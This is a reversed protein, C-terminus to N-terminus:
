ETSTQEGKELLEVEVATIDPITQEGGLVNEYTFLGNYVGWVEIIDDELFRGGDWRILVDNDWTYEGPTVYARFQFGEEEDGLVQAIEGQQIHIEEGEYQDENRMLDDYPIEEANAKVEEPDLEEGGGGGSCGALGATTVASVGIVFERRDM